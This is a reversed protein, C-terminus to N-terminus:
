YGANQTLNGDYTIENQPIPLLSATSKWTTKYAGIVPNIRGTRKLDFFRHGWETFFEVQREHMIADLLLAQSTATTNPLGARSRITNLDSQAGNINNQRARAEARILFQEALRLAVLYEPATTTTTRNHYKYPYFYSAGNVVTAKAWVSKRLDGVEFANLLTTTLPYNPLGSSPILSPCDISFGNQTYFQLISEKSGALFVNAPTELPGYLGSNIVASTMSEANAWDKQYLYVRALLATAAWKNARVKGTGQYSVSLGSQADKLDQVIQAYVTASDTRSAQASYTADTNLLLPVAGFSNSLYFYSYARLFKAESVFQNATNATINQGSKFQTILQNCQYISSYNNRWINLDASNTISVTGQVFDVSNQDTGTFNLEDAYMGYYKTSNTNILNDYQAYINLLASTASTSDAFVKDTTLQNIPTAVVIMKKCGCCGLMLAIGILINKIKM